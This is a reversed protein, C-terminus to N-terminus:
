RHRQQAQSSPGPIGEAAVGRRRGSSRGDWSIATSAAVQSTTTPRKSQAARPMSVIGPWAEWYPPAWDTMDIRRAGAGVKLFPMRNGRAEEDNNNARASVSNTPAAGPAGAEATM